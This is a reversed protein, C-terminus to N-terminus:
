KGWIRTIIKHGKEDRKFWDPKHMLPPKQRFNVLLHVDAKDGTVKFGESKLKAVWDAANDEAESRTAGADQLIVDKETVEITDGIKNRKTVHATAYFKNM